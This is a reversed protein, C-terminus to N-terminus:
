KRDAVLKARIGASCYRAHDIKDVNCKRDAVLRVRICSDQSVPRLFGLNNNYSISRKKYLAIRWEGASESHEHRM